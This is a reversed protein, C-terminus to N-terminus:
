MRLVGLPARKSIGNIHAAAGRRGSVCRANLHAAIMPLEL